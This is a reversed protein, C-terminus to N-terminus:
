GWFQPWPPQMVGNQYVIGDKWDEAQLLPGDLDCVECMEGLVMSPAMAVSGGVMCGVMLRFGDQKAANALDLAATLGGTKDLKINIFDYRGRLHPLDDVTDVAEDACIAVPCDYDILAHDGDVPVPQELLDVGLDVLGAAYQRLQDVSWAQNPDVILKADPANRRVAAIAALPEHEAVKIKIWPYASLARARIAYGDLDRIGITIASTVTGGRGVGAREWARVGSLKAELDWLAGDLANRAGGAPLLELLRRRDIGAEVQDKVGEIQAQLKALTEGHYDVGVAEGLGISGQERLQVVIVESTTQVGRSISFPEKLPWSILGINLTRPKM